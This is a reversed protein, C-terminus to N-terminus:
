VYKSAEMALSKVMDVGFITVFENFKSTQNTRYILAVIYTGTPDTVLPELTIRLSEELPKTSNLTITFVGLDNLGVIKNVNQLFENKVLSTLSDNPSKQSRVRTTCELGIMNAAEEVFNLDVLIRKIETEYLQNFDLTNVIQFIILNENANYFVILNDKSFYATQVQRAAPNSSISAPGQTLTFNRDRFARNFQDPTFTAYKAQFLLTVSSGVSNIEVTKNV